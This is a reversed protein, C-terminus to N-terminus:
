QLKEVKTRGPSYQQEWPRGILLGVIVFFMAIAVGIAAWLNLSPGHRRQNVPRRAVPEGIAPSSVQREVAALIENM